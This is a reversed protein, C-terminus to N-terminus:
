KSITTQLLEYLEGEIRQLKQKKSITTDMTELIEREKIKVRLNKMDTLVGTIEEMYLKKTHLINKFFNLNNQLATYRKNLIDYESILLPRLMKVESILIDEAETKKALSSAFKSKLNENNQYSQAYQYLETKVLRRFQYDYNINDTRTDTTTSAASSSSSSATTTTHDNSHSSTSAATAITTHKTLTSAPPVSSLLSSSKIINSIKPTPSLPV